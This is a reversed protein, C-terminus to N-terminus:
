KVIGFRRAATIISAAVPYTLEAFQRVTPNYWIRQNRKCAAAWESRPISVRNDSVTMSMLSAKLKELIVQCAYEVPVVPILPALAGIAAGLRGDRARAELLSIVDGCVSAPDFTDFVYYRDFKRLDGLDLSMHLANELLEVVPARYDPEDHLRDIDLILDSYSVAALNSLSWSLLHWRFAQDITRASANSVLYMYQINSGWWASRTETRWPLAPPRWEQPVLEIMPHGGASGLEVAPSALYGWGGGDLIARVASGFQSLPDRFQSIHFGGFLARLVGARGRSNVECLVPRRGRARAFGMLGALYEALDRAIAGNVPYYGIFEPYDPCLDRVVDWADLFEEYDPRDLFHHNVDWRQTAAGEGSRRRRIARAIDKKGDMIAENFCMLSQDRRLVNFFYTSGSRMSAHVFVPDYQISTSMSGSLGEADHRELKRAAAITM